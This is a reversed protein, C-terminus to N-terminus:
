CSIERGKEREGQEYTGSFNELSDVNLITASGDKMLIMNLVALLYIDPRIECGLLQYKKIDSVKDAYKELSGELQREADKLMIKM